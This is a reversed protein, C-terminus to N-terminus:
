AVPRRCAIRLLMRYPKRLLSETITVGSLKLYENTTSFRLRTLREFASLRKFHETDESFDIDGRVSTMRCGSHNCARYSLFLGALAFGIEDVRHATVAEDVLSMYRDIYPFTAREDCSYSYLSLIEPHVM